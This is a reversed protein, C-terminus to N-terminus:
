TFVRPPSAAPGRRVACQQKGLSVVLFHALLKRLSGAKRNLRRIQGATPKDHALTLDFDIQGKSRKQPLVALLKLM